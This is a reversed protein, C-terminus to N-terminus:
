DLTILLNLKKKQIEKYIVYENIETSVSLLEPPELSVLKESLINILTSKWSTSM